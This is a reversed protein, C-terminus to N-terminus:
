RARRELIEIALTLADREQRLEQIVATLAPGTIARVSEEAPKAPLAGAPKRGYRKAARAKAAVRMKARTEESLKRGVPMAVTDEEGNLRDLRSALMADEFRDSM